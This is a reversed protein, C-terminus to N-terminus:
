HRRILLSGTLTAIAALTVFVNSAPDGNPSPQARPPAPPAADPPPRTSSPAPDSGPPTRNTPPPPLATSAASEQPNPTPPATADTILDDIPEPQQAPLADIPVAHPAPLDGTPGAHPAPLDGTPDAHPAPLADIPGAHPAPRNGTPAPQPAPLDRTLTAYPEPLDGTSAPHQAPSTPAAHPAPLLAPAAHPAPWFAPPLTTPPILPLLRIPRQPLLSLPNLYTTAQLLGWHLCTAPACHSHAASLTGLPTGPSVTTGPRVTPNVPEYTTRLPGNTIVIVGRGAIPAAFTVTGPTASRVQQGPSGRLDLGRHGPLWPKAPAEFGRVIEPRPELPWVARPDATGRRLNALEPQPGVTAQRPTATEPPPDAAAQRPIAPKPHPDAPDDVGRHLNTLEPQAATTVKHHPELALRADATAPTLPPPSSRGPAPQNPLLLAAALLPTLLLPTM